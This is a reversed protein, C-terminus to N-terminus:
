CPKGMTRDLTDGQGGLIKCKYKYYLVNEVGGGSSPLFHVGECTNELSKSQLKVTNSKLANINESDSNELFVKLHEIEVEKASSNKGM